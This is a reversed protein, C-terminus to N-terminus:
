EHHVEAMNPFIVIEDISGDYVGEFIYSPLGHGLWWANFFNHKRVMYSFSDVIAWDEKMNKLVRETCKKGMRIQNKYSSSFFRNTCKPCLGHLISVRTKSFAQNFLPTATKIDFKSLCCPCIGFNNLNTM